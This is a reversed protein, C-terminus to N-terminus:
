ANADGTQTVLRYAATAVMARVAPVTLEITAGIGAARACVPVAELLPAAAAGEADSGPVTAFMGAVQDPLSRALCQAVADTASYSRVTAGASRALRANLPTSEKELLAEALSGAFLLDSSRMVRASMLTERVCTRNAEESLLRLGTQYNSKTFDMTLLRHAEGPKREAMCAGFTEIAQRAAPTNTEDWDREDGVQALAGASNAALLASLALALRM